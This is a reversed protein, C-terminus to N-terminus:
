HVVCVVDPDAGTRYLDGAILGGGIAAANNAFVQLTAFNFNGNALTIASGGSSEMKATDGAITTSFGNGDADVIQATTPSLIVQAGSIDNLLLSGGGSADLQVQIGGVTLRVVSTGAIVVTTGNLQTTGTGDMALSDTGTGDVLSVEGTGSGFVLGQSVGDTIQLDALAVADLIPAAGNITVTATNGGGVDALAITAGRLSLTGGTFATLLADNTGFLVLNAGVGDSLNLVGGATTFAISSNGDGLFLDPVASYDNADAVVVGNRGFVSTVLNIGGAGIVTWGTNGIGTQKQWWFDPAVADTQIYWSGPPATVAGEPSGTGNTMTTGNILVITGNSLIELAIDGLLNTYQQLPYGQSAQVM